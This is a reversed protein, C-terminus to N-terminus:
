TLVEVEIDEGYDASSRSVGFWYNNSVAKIVGDFTLFLGYILADTKPTYSSDYYSYPYMLGYGNANLELNAEPGIFESLTLNTVTSSFEGASTETIIYLQMVENSIQVALYYEGSALRGFGGYNSTQNTIMVSTLGNITLNGADYEVKYLTNTGLWLVTGLDTCLLTKPYSDRYGAHSNSQGYTTGMTIAGTATFKVLRMIFSNGGGDTDVSLCLGASIRVSHSGSYKYTQEGLLSLTKSSRNFGVVHFGNNNSLWIVSESDFGGSIGGYGIGYMETGVTLDWDYFGMESQTVNTTLTLTDWDVSLVWLGMGYGESNGLAVIINTDDYPDPIIGCANYIQTAGYYLFLADGLIITKGDKIRGVKVYNSSNGGNFLFVFREDDIWQLNHIGGFSFNLVKEFEDIQMPEGQLVNVFCNNPIGGLDVCKLTEKTANKIKGTGPANIKGWM